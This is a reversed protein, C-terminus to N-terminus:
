AAVRGDTLDARDIRRHYRMGAIGGLLAGILSVVLVAVAAVIGGTTLDGQSVPIQPLGNLNSLLNFRSGAAATLVAVVVAVIIAWLWVGLGQRLGNFRAMRGAVYGGCFYAVLIVVLLVIAGAIGMSQSDGSTPVPGNQEAGVAAGTGVLLASLLVAFGTATLWGFFCGGFKMGGFREKQRRVLERSDVGQHAIGQDDGGQHDLDRRSDRDGRPEDEARRDAPNIATSM